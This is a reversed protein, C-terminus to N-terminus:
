EAAWSESRAETGDWCAELARCYMPWADTDNIENFRSTITSIYYNDAHELGFTVPNTTQIALLRETTEDGEAM